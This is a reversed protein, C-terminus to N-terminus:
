GLRWGGEGDVGFADVLVYFGLVWWMVWVGSM